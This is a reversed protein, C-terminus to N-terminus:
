LLAFQMCLLNLIKGVLSARVWVLIQRFKRNRGTKDPNPKMQENKKGPKVMKQGTKGRKQRFIGTKEGTKGTKNAETWIRWSVKPNTQVRNAQNRADRIGVGCAHYLNLLGPWLGEYKM